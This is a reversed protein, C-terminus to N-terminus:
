SIVPTSMSGAFSSMSRRPWAGITSFPMWSSVRLTMRLPRTVTVSETRSAIRRGVEREDADARRSAGVAALIEVAMVRTASCIPATSASSSWTAVGDDHARGHLGAGDLVDDLGREFRADPRM